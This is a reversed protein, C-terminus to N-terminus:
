GLWGLKRARAVAEVTREVGLAARAEALRRDATRRSLGLTSAADGLTRGEALIALIARADDDLNPAPETEGRRLEVRRVHRLDEILRDLVDRSARGHLVVGGGALVVLLAAGADVELDVAGTRVDRVTAPRGGFGSSVRWGSRSVEAIAAAFAADDGEVLIM